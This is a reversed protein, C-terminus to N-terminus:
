TQDTSLNISEIIPGPEPNGKADRSPSVSFLDKCLIKRKQQPQPIPPEISESHWLQNSIM